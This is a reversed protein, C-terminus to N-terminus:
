RCKQAEELLVDLVELDEWRWPSAKVAQLLGRLLCLRMEAVDEESFNDPVSFILSVDKM